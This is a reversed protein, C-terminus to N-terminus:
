RRREACRRRCRRRPASTGRRWRPLAWSCSRLTCGAACCRGRCAMAMLRTGASDAGGTCLCRTHRASRHPGVGGADALRRNPPARARRPPLCRAARTARPPPQQVRARAARAAVRRRRRSRRCARRRTHEPTRFCRALVSLPASQGKSWQERAKEPPARAGTGRRQKCGARPCPRRLHRAHAAYCRRVRAALAATSRHAAPGEAARRVLGTHSHPAIVAVPWCGQGGGPERLAGDPPRAACPDAHSSYRVACPLVFAAPRPLWAGASLQYAHLFGAFAGIAGAAWMSPVRV